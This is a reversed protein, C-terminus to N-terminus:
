SLTNSVGKHMIILFQVRCQTSNSDRVLLESEELDNGRLLTVACKPTGVEVRSCETKLNSAGHVERM